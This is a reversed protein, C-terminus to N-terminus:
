GGVLRHSVPRSEDVVRRARTYSRRAARLERKLHRRDAPPATAVAGELEAIRPEHEAALIALRQAITPGPDVVEPVRDADRLISVLTDSNLDINSVSVNPSTHAHNSPEPAVVSWRCVRAHGAPPRERRSPRWSRYLRREKRVGRCVAVAFGALLMVSALLAILFVLIGGALPDMEVLSLPSSRSQLLRPLPSLSDSGRAV